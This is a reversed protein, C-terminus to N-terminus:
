VLTLNLTTAVYNWIITDDAGWQQVISSPIEVNGIFYETAGLESDVGVLKYEVKGGGDDFHYDFFNTLALVNISKEGDPTWIQVPQIQKTNSM